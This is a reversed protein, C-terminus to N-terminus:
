AWGESEDLSIAFLIANIDEASNDGFRHCIESWTDEDLAANTTEWDAKTWYSIAIDEEPDRGKLDQLLYKIKM